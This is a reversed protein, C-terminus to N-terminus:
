TKFNKDSNLSEKLSIESFFFRGAFFLIRCECISHLISYQAYKTTQVGCLCNSENEENQVCTWTHTHLFFFSDQIPWTQTQKRIIRRINFLKCNRKNARSGFSEKMISFEIKFCELSRYLRLSHFFTTWSITKKRQTKKKKKYVCVYIVVCLSLCM